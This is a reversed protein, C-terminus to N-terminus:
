STWTEQTMKREVRRAPRDKYPIHLWRGFHLYSSCLELTELVVAGISSVSRNQYMLDMGFIVTAAWSNHQTPKCAQSAARNGQVQWWMPTGLLIAFPALQLQSHLLRLWFIHEFRPLVDSMYHSQSRSSLCAKFSKATLNGLVMDWCCRDEVSVFPFREGRVSKFWSLCEHACMSWLLDQTISSRHTGVEQGRFAVWMLLLFVGLRCAQASPYGLRYGWPLLIVLPLSSSLLELQAREERLPSSRQM